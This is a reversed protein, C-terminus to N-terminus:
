KFTVFYERDFEPFDPSFINIYAGIPDKGDFGFLLRNGSTIRNTTLFRILLGNLMMKSNEQLQPSFRNRFEESNISYPPQWRVNKDWSNKNSGEPTAHWKFQFERDFEDLSIGARHFKLFDEIKKGEFAARVSSKGNFSRDGPRVWNSNRHLFVPTRPQFKERYVPIVEVGLYTVEPSADSRHNVIFWYASQKKIRYAGNEPFIHFDISDRAKQETDAYPLFAVTGTPNRYFQGIGRMLLPELLEDSHGDHFCLVLFFIAFMSILIKKLFM